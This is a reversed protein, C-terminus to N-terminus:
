ITFSYWEKLLISFLASLFWCVKFFFIFFLNSSFFSFVSIFLLRAEAFTSGLRLAYLFKNSCSVYSSCIVESLIGFVVYISFDELCLERWRQLCFYAKWKHKVAHKAFVQLPSALHHFSRSAEPSSRSAYKQCFTDLVQSGNYNQRGHPLIGVFILQNPSIWIIM